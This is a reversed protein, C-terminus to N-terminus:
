NDFGVLVRVNDGGHKGALAKITTQVWRGFSSNNEDTEFGLRGMSSSFLDVLEAASVHTANHTDVCELDWEGDLCPTRDADHPLGRGGIAGPRDGRRVGCLFGFMSYVRCEPDARYDPDFDIAPDDSYDSLGARRRPVARWGDDTKIEVQLHIDCGM